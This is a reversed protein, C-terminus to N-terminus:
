VAMELILQDTSELPTRSVDLCMGLKIKLTNFETSFSYRLFMDSNFQLAKFKTCFFAAPVFRLYGTIYLILYLFFTTSM